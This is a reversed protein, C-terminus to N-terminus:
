QKDELLYGEDESLITLPSRQKTQLEEDPTDAREKDINRAEETDASSPLKLCPQMEERAFLSYKNKIFDPAVKLQSDDEVQGAVQQTVKKAKVDDKSTSKVLHSLKKMM